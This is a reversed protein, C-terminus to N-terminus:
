NFLKLLATNQSYVIDMIVNSYKNIFEERANAYESSLSVVSTDHTTKNKLTDKSAKSAILNLRSADFYKDFHTTIKEFEIELNNKLGEYSLITKKKTFTEQFIWKDLHQAYLKSWYTIQHKNNIDENYYRLQSYITAVPHRYLYIVNKRQIDLEEDHRHYCTFEMKETYFFARSLAPKEFYLEMLMRLWHSGTRPFSILYPFDPNQIFSLRTKYDHNFSEGQVKAKPKKNLLLKIM